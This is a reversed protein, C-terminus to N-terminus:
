KFKEAAKKGSLIVKDMNYYEWEGFRGIPIINHALLYDRIVRVNKKHNLDLIVYAYKFIKAECVAIEDNETIINAKVLGQLVQKKTENIDIDKKRYTVEILVSSYDAPTTHPSFNMPFSIRNFIFDKEPFYLWHKDTIDPRKVGLMVCLLSNYVLNDTAIKVEEPVNDMMDIIEPLPLSSMVKESELSSEMGNELYITEIGETSPNFWTVEAELKVPIDEALSEALAGIGGHLPYWFEANPGYDISQPSKAGKRMEDVSPSPVRGVIWDINMRKLPYKWIKENYPVMYHRAIGRGVTSQIWEYFNSPEISPRNMVGMICEEKVKEPLPYLNVEFPYKIYTSMLYIYARRIQIQINDKLVRHFLDRVYHNHTFLIHPAYDFVYDDINVSKCLGGVEPDKELVTYDTKLHYAASLGALGAGIITIM